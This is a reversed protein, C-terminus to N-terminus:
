LLGIGNLNGFGLVAVTAALAGLWVALGVRRITWRQVSVKPRTPVCCRFETVLDRGDANMESRLQGPVTVSSTAAFAEAIEDPSFQRAAIAYVHESTSHLALVMMMNALDVAERWASPRVEAFAVDILYLHGDRVMVNAPKIDRHALGHDWMRRVITLGEEITDDDVEAHTLEQADTLFETVLVYEREPTITVIGLPEPVAIGADRM